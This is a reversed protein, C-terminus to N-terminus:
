NTIRPQIGVTVTFSGRNDPLHDDNVGLYLRGTVPATITHRDGVFIPGFTGVRAILAGALQNLMPADPARRGQKSGAPTAVDTSDSMTIEGSSSFTVVDGRRVELGTDNWRQQSDVQVTRSVVDVRDSRQGIVDFEQRTLVGDRNADRQDFGGLSWHWENRSLTGSNDYDLSAFQDYRDGTGEAGGVVEFRSLVGNRNNDLRNFSTTTGHWESREVLGNNNADLDDFLDDRADDEPDGVVFEQQSLANDRNQDVRRFTELDFHWENRTLRRDRNHDLANFSQVTWNLNREFRNPTHDALERQGGIRVEDGSLQGDGNWDHVLFSRASGQWEDRSIAGDGNRDMSQFRMRAAQEATGDSANAIPAGAWALALLPITLLLRLM